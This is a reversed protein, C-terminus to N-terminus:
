LLKEFLHCFVEFSETVYELQSIEQSVSLEEIDVALVLSMTVATCNHADENQRYDGYVRYTLVVIYSVIFIRDVTVSQNFSRLYFFNNITLFFDLIVNRKRDSIHLFPLMM